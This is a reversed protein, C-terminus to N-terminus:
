WGVPRRDLGAGRGRALPQVGHLAEGIWADAGAHEHGRQEGAKRGLRVADGAHHPGGGTVAGAKDARSHEMEVVADTRVEEVEEPAGIRLQEIGTLAEEGALVSRVGEVATDLVRDGLRLRSGAVTGAVMAAYLGNRCGALESEELSSAERRAGESM